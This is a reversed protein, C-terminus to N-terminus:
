KEETQLTKHLLPNFIQITLTKSLSTQIYKIYNYNHM